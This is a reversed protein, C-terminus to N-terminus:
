KITTYRGALVLYRTRKGVEAVAEAYYIMYSHGDGPAILLGQVSSARPRTPLTILCRICEVGAENPGFYEVDRPIEPLILPM